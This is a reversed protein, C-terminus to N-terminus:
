LYKRAHVLWVVTLKLFQDHEFDLLCGDYTYCKQTFSSLNTVLVRFINDVMKEKLNLMPKRTFCMEFGIPRCINSLILWECSVLFYPFCKYIWWYFSNGFLGDPKVCLKFWASRWLFCSCAVGKNHFKDGPQSWSTCHWCSWDSFNRYWRLSALKISIFNHIYSFICEEELIM